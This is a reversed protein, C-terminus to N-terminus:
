VWSRWKLSRYYPVDQGYDEVWKPEVVNIKYNVYHAITGLYLFFLSCWALKSVNSRQGHAYLFQHLPTDAMLKNNYWNFLRFHPRKVTRLEGTHNEFHM